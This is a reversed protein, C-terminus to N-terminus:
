VTGCHLFLCWSNSEIPLLKISNGIIKNSELSNREKITSGAKKKRYFNTPTFPMFM